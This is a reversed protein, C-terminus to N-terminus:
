AHSPLIVKLFRESGTCPKGRKQVKTSFLFEIEIRSESIEIANNVAEGLLSVTSSVNRM